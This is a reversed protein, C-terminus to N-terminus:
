NTEYKDPNREPALQLMPSVVAALVCICYLFGTSKNPHSAVSLTHTPVPCVLVWQRHLADGFM